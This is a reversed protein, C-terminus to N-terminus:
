DTLLAYKDVVRDILASLEDNCRIFDCDYTGEGKYLAIFYEDGDVRVEGVWLINEYENLYIEIVLVYNQKNFRDYLHRFRSDNQYLQPESTLDAILSAAIQEDIPELVTYRHHDGLNLWKENDDIEPFNYARLSFRASTADLTYVGGADQHMRVEPVSQKEKASFYWSTTSTYALVDDTSVGEISYWASPYIFDEKKLLEDGKDWILNYDVVQYKSYDIRRIACGSFCPFLLCVAILILCLRKM